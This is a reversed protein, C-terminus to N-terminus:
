LTNQTGTGTSLISELVMKMLFIKQRMKGQNYLSQVLNYVAEVRDLAFKPSMYVVLERFNRDGWKINTDLKFPTLFKVFCDTLQWLIMILNVKNILITHNQSMRQTETRDVTNHM